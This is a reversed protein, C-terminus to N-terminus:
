EPNPEEPFSVYVFFAGPKETRMLRSTVGDVHKDVQRWSGSQVDIILSCGWAVAVNVVAGMVLLMMVRAVIRKM